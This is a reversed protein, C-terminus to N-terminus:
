KVKKIFVNNIFDEFSYESEQKKALNSTAEDELNLYKLSYGYNHKTAKKFVVDLKLDIKLLNIIRKITKSSCNLGFDVGVIAKPNFSVFMLKYLGLRVSKCIKPDVLWRIENEYRWVESKKHICTSIIENIFEDRLTGKKWYVASGYQPRKIEYDVEMFHNNNTDIYDKNFVIRLGKHSDAYHTWMLIEHEKEKAKKCFCTILSIKKYQKKGEEIHKRMIETAETKVKEILKARNVKNGLEWDKFYRFPLFNNHHSEHLEKLLDERSMFDRKIEKTTSNIISPLLEFPDSFDEPFSAKLRLNKLTDFGHEPNFYKYIFSATEM